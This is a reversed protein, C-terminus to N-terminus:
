PLKYGPRNTIVTGSNPTADGFRFFSQIQMAPSTPNPDDYPSALVAESVDLSVVFSSQPSSFRIPEMSQFYLFTPGVHGFLDQGKVVNLVGNTEVIGSETSITFPMEGDVFANNKVFSVYANIDFYLYSAQIHILQGDCDVVSIKYDVRASPGQTYQSTIPEVRTEGQGPVCEPNKTPTPQPAVGNSVVIPGPTVTTNSSSTSHVSANTGADQKGGQTATASGSGSGSESDSGSASGGKAQSTASTDAGASNTGSGTLVQSSNQFKIQRNSCNLLGLAVSLGLIGRAFLKQTRSRSLQLQKM